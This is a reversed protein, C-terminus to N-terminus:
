ALVGRNIVLGNEDNGRNIIDFVRTFTEETDFVDGNINITINEREEENELPEELIAESAPAISAAVSGDGGSSPSAASSAGGAFAKLAAGLAIAAFGAVVAPGGTLGVVSGRIGESLVGIAVAATGLQILLDGVLSILTNGFNDFANSGDVLSKGLTQAFTSIAQTKFQNFIPKTKEVLEKSADTVDKIGKKSDTGFKRFAESVLALNTTFRSAFDEGFAGVSSTGLDSFSQSLADVEEKLARVGAAEEEPSVRLSGLIGKTLVNLGPINVLSSFLDILANRIANIAVRFAAGGVTFVNFFLKFADVLFEVSEAVFLIVSSFDALQKNIKGFDGSEVISRINLSLIKLTDSVTKLTATFFPNQTIFKGLEALLRKFNGTVSEAQNGFTLLTKNYAGQFVAGKELIGFYEASAKEASTLENATKGISEAYERTLQSLNETIGANDVKNSIDQKLGESAGVIAQGLSLNAQRAVSASDAFTKFTNITRDVDGDFNLLLNRFSNTVDDLPIIGDSAFETAAQELRNFDAGVSNAVLRLSTFSRELETAQNVAERVTFATGLAAGIAAVQGQVGTLAGKIRGLGSKLSSGFGQSFESGSKKGSKSFAAPITSNLAKEADTKDLELRIVVKEDAM